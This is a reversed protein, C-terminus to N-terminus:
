IEFRLLMLSMGGSIIPMILIISGVPILWGTYLKLESFFTFYVYTPVPITLGALINIVGGKWSGKIIILSGYVLILASICTLISFAVIPVILNAISTFGSYAHYILIIYFALVFLGIAGTIGLFASIM